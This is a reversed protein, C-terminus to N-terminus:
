LIGSPLSDRFHGGIRPYIFNDRSLESSPAGSLVTLQAAVQNAQPEYNAEGKLYTKMLNKRAYIAQFFFLNKDLM